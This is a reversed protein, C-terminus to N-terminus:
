PEFQKLINLEIPDSYTVVGNGTTYILFISFEGIEASTLTLISGFPELIDVRTNESLVIRDFPILGEITM